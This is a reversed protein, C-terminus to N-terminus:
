SQRIEVMRRRIIDFDDAARPKIGPCARPTEGLYIEGAGCRVCTQTFPDIDHGENESM